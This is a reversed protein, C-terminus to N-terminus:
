DVNKILDLQITVARRSVSADHILRNRDAGPGGAKM